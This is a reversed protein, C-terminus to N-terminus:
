GRLQGLKERLKIEARLLAAHEKESITEGWEGCTLFNIATILVSIETQTLRM